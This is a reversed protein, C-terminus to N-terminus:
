SLPERRKPSWTGPRVVMKEVARQTVDPMGESGREEARPSVGGGETIATEAGRAPSSPPRGERKSPM